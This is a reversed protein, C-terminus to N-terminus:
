PVTAEGFAWQENLLASLLLSAVLHTWHRQLLEVLLITAVSVDHQRNPMRHLEFSGARLRMIVSGGGLSMEPKM